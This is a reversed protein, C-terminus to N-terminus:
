SYNYIIDNKNNMIFVTLVYEFSTFYEHIDKICQGQRFTIGFINILEVLWFM